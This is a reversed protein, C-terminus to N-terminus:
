IAVYMPASFVTHAVEALTITEVKEEKKNLNFLCSCAVIFVLLVCFLYVFIKRKM